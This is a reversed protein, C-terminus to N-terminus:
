YDKRVAIHLEGSQFVEYGGSCFIAHFFSKSEEGHLEVCISRVSALWAECSKGLVVKEAGEVDMKLIDAGAPSFSSLVTAMSLARVAGMALGEQVRIGWENGVFGGDDLTVSGDNDWIAAKECRVRDGYRAVNKLLVEFNRADPELCICRAEPYRELFYVASYGVNAGLDVIVRANPIRKCLSDYERTVFIQRFVRWDTSGARVYVGAPCYRNQVFVMADIRVRFTKWLIKRVPGVLYHVVAARVGVVEWVRQLSRKFRYLRHRATDWIRSREKM